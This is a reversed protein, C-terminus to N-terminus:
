AVPIENKRLDTLKAINSYYNMICNASLFYHQNNNLLRYELLDYHELKSFWDDVNASKSCTQVKQINAM